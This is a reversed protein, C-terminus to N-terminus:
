RDSFDACDYPASFFAGSTRLDGSLRAPNPTPAVLAKQRLPAPNRLASCVGAPGSGSGVAATTEAVDFRAPQVSEDGCGLETLGFGAPPEPWRGVTSMPVM